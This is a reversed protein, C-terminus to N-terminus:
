NNFGIAACGFDHWWDHRVRSDVIDMAVTAAVLDIRMCTVCFGWWLLLLVVVM